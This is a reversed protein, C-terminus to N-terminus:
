RASGAPAPEFAVRLFNSLMRFTAGWIEHQGFVFASTLIVESGRLRPLTVLSNSDRLHSLPVEIVEAVEAEHPQWLYPALASDIAGVFPTVHFNTNTVLDDVRGIVEVHERLLGIEETSERLATMMLDADEPDVAGGPFSIEGKHAEVRNTRKTLVVHIEDRHVYLPILVAARAAGDSVLEHPEYAALRRKIDELM